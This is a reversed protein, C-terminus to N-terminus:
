NGPTASAMIRETSIESLPGPMTYPGSSAKMAIMRYNALLMWVAGFPSDLKLYSKGDLAYGYHNPFHDAPGDLFYGPAISIEDGIVRNDTPLLQM